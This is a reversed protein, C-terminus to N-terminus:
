VGELAGEADAVLDAADEVGLAVRVTGADVGALALQEESYGHHSTHVPLSVLTEVGGLSAARSMLQLTPNAYRTYLHLSEDGALYRRMEESASFAFTSSQVIPTTLPGHLPGRRGHVARTGLGRKGM